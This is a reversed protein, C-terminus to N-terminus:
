RVIRLQVKLWEWLSYYKPTLVRHGPHLGLSSQSMTVIGGDAECRFVEILDFQLPSKLTPNWRLLRGTPRRGIGKLVANVIETKTAM